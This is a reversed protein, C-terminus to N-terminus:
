KEAEKEALMKRVRSVLESPTLHNEDDIWPEDKMEEELAFRRWATTGPTSGQRRKSAGKRTGGGM